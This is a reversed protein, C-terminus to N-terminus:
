PKALALPFDPILAPRNMVPHQAGDTLVKVREELYIDLIDTTIRGSQDIKAKGQGIAEILAEAFAGHRDWKADEHSLETGMSASYVVLGSGATSFDNVLKNMDPAVDSSTAKIGPMAAGAHCADIFLVKKGPIGAVLDLLDDNSIATARLRTIDADRTLFWFNQKGDRIGHGSLFIISIDRSTAARQLWYLGDVVNPRTPDERPKAPDDVIKIEVDSYLGGKQAELAEALSEADRAPFQLTDYDHNQYGTVGVLLAYLKPKLLDATSPTPNPSASPGDYKLTVTVPSSTLDGSHAILSVKTNKRPLTATVKGRTEPSNTKEFGTAPIPQGDALM